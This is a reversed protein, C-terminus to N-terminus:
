IHKLKDKAFLIAENTIHEGSIMRAIENIRGNKDLLIVNSKNENKQVLYHNDAFSPMHPQHSIAFIQYNESLFSLIRAVAESETGSLNADIEDLIIIGSQKKVEMSICLIALKLRNFEGASLTSLNSDRLKLSLFDSGYIDLEKKQISISPLPLMLINAYFELRSKFRDLYKARADSMKKISDLMRSHINELDKLLSDKNFIINDYKQLDNKKNELYKNLLEISGHKRILKAISELRNLLEEVDYDINLLREEEDYIAAEIENLADEFIAKNKDISNLFSIIEPFGNLTNKLLQIKQLQKDKQSLTKKIELLEEYEGEKPNVSEIKTIEYLTFERLDDINKESEELKELENKKKTYELFDSSYDLLLSEYSNIDKCIFADLISLLYSNSLEDVSAMDIYKVYNIFIDKIRKKSAIQDDLFYKTKSDKLIKLIFNERDFSHISDLFEAEIKCATSDKIGLLALINGILVSKGSGSAGSFVNFGKSPKILVDNLIASDEILLKQIM